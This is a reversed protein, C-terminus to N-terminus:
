SRSELQPRLAPQAFSSSPLSPGSVGYDENDESLKLLVGSNRWSEDVWEAVLDTVDLSVRQPRDASGIEADSLAPCFELEREDFWDL